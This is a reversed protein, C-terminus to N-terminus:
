PGKGIAADFMGGYFTLWEDKQILGDGNNDFTTFLENIKEAVLGGSRSALQEVESRDIEGNGDLDLSNFAITVKELVTQRSTAASAADTEPNVQKIIAMAEKMANAAEGSM